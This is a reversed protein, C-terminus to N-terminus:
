IVMMRVLDAASHRMVYGYYIMTQGDHYPMIFMKDGVVAAGGLAVQNTNTAVPVLENQSVDFRFIRGTAEKNIYIFGLGDVSSTGSTFTEIQNGYAVGSIWTNAAIDYVDLTSSAGGRFSYIYRGNQKFITNNYHNIQTENDWGIVETIHDATGGTAQAGARAAVPALTAWTNSSVTFRYMTVANNGLLYFSDDNAEIMYTSTADPNVTWTPVTLTTGTNSTIARIQGVGTGSTIRVQYNAWMNTAWAKGSNVLTTGTASTALGAAVGFRITFKSTTDPTTTWASTVTLETATNSAIVRVQGLGAGGVIQVTGYQWQNVSWLATTDVITTATASTTALENMSNPIIPYRNRNLYGASVGGATSVLQGDTGWATPLGAVSRATWANTAIDYVSFGVAVTGANFFWLSGSYVQFQTTADFAVGNAPSVTLVANTNLTNGTVIGEYGVGTGAVVRIRSGAISKVITRNTTLTTTTGATATQTFSGGMAGIGRFEGCSGAAFTGAIGSNPLQCWADQDGEYMYINSVNTVLFAKSGVVTDNKDSVVFGGATTNAPASNCAEWAKRHLLKRLKVATTM